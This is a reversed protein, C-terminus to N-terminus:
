ERTTVTANSISASGENLNSSFNEGKLLEQNYETIKEGEPIKRFLEVAQITDFNM